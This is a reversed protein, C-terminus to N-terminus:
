RLTVLVEDVHEGSPLKTFDRTLTVPNYLGLKLLEANVPRDIVLHQVIIDGTELANLSVNLGDAQAVLQQNADVAHAFISLPPVVPRDVRWYTVLDLGSDTTLEYGILSLGSDFAIPLELASRDPAFIPQKELPKLVGGLM